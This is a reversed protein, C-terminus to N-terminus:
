DGACRTQGEAIAVVALHALEDYLTPRLPYARRVVALQCDIHQNM